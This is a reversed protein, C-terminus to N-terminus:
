GCAAALEADQAAFMAPSHWAIYLRPLEVRDELLLRQSGALSAEALVPAPVPGALLDGFYDQALAFATETEIDGALSLSANAPHYYTAFFERVDDLQM